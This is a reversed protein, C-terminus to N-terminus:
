QTQVMINVHIKSTIIHADLLLNASRILLTHKELNDIICLLVRILLYSDFHWRDVVVQFHLIKRPKRTNFGIICHQFNGAIIIKEIVYICAVYKAM